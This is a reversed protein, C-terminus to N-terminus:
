RTEPQKAAGRRLGPPVAAGDRVAQPPYADRLLAKYERVFVERQGDSLAQLVPRAGTGSIWRSCPTTAPSSM